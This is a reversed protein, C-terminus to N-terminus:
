YKGARTSVVRSTFKWHSLLLNSDSFPGISDAPPIGTQLLHSHVDLYSHFALDDHEFSLEGVNQLDPMSWFALLSKEDYCM